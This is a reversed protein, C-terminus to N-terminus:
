FPKVLGKRERWMAIKYEEMDKKGLENGQKEAERFMTVFYDHHQQMTRAIFNATNPNDKKIAETRSVAYESDITPTTPGSYTAM